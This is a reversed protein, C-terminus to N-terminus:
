GVGQAAEEPISVISGPRCQATRQARGLFTEPALGASGIWLKGSQSLMHAPPAGVTQQLPPFGLLASRRLLSVSSPGRQLVSDRGFGLAERLELQASRPGARRADLPSGVCNRRPREWPDERRAWFDCLFCGAVVRCARATRGVLSHQKLLQDISPCDVFKVSKSSCNPLRATARILAEREHTSDKRAKPSTGGSPAGCLPASTSLPPGESKPGSMPARTHADSRRAARPSRLIDLPPGDAVDYSDACTVAPTHM